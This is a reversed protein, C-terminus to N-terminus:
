KQERLVKINLIFATIAIIVYVYNYFLEITDIGKSLGFLIWGGTMILLVMDLYIITRRASIM